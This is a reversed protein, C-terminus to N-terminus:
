CSARGIPVVRRFPTARGDVWVEMPVCVSRATRGIAFPFSTYKGVTGRYAFAPTRERCAEFRIASVYRGRHQFAALSQAEPAIALVVKTRAPLIVPAKQVFPWASGNGPDAGPPNRVSPWLLLPGIRVGAQVPLQAPSNSESRSHCDRLEGAPAETAPRSAGVGASAVSGGVVVFFFAAGILVRRMPVFSVFSHIPAPRQTRHYFRHNLKEGSNRQSRPRVRERDCRQGAPM